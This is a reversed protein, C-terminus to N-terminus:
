CNSSLLLLEKFIDAFFQKSKASPLASLRVEKVDQVAEPVPSHCSISLRALMMENGCFFGYGFFGWKTFTLSFDAMAGVAKNEM